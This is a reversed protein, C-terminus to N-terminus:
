NGKIHGTIRDFRELADLSHLVSDIDNKKDQISGNQKKLNDIIEDQKRISKDYLWIQNDIQNNMLDISNLLTNYKISDQRYRELLDLYEKEVGEGKELFPRLFYGLCLALVLAAYPWWKKFNQYYLM